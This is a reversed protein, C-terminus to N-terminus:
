FDLQMDAPLKLIRELLRKCWQCAIDYSITLEKLDFGALASMVIYDMNAYRRCADTWFHTPSITHLSRKGKVKRFTELDM